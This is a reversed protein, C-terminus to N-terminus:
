KLLAIINEIAAYEPNFLYPIGYCILFITSIVFLFFTIAMIGTEIDGNKDYKILMVVFLILFLIWISASIIGQICAQKIALLYLENLKEESVKGLRSLAVLTGSSLGITYNM